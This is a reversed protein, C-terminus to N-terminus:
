GFYYCECIREAMDAVAAAEKSNAGWAAVAHYRLIQAAEIAAVCDQGCGDSALLDMFETRKMARGFHAAFITNITLTATAKEKATTM